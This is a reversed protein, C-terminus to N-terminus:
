AKRDFLLAQVFGNAPSLRIAEPTDLQVARGADMVLMRTGLRMAENIDHTVFIVTIKLEAHLGAIEEQLSRRTIEDVAGFPEDMLLIKPRAALARAIGVRQRQGGSLEHPYRGAMTDDMGVTRLLQSVRERTERRSWSRSLSPVYAINERVTMHPFLGVDQIAYGISRRLRILDSQAVNQGNVFVAGQDPVRLGNILRLATTKGCGSRGIITLFEGAAVSLNFDDLANTGDYRVTVHEFRICEDM